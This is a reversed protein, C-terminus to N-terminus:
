LVASGCIRCQWIDRVTIYAMRALHRPALRGGFAAPLAYCAWIEMLTPLECGVLQRAWNPTKGAGRAAALYAVAIAAACLSRFWVRMAQRWRVLLGM